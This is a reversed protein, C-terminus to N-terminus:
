PNTGAGQDIECLYAGDTAEAGEIDILAGKAGLRNWPKLEAARVDSVFYGAHVPIGESEMWQQYPTRESFPEARFTESKKGGARKKDHAIAVTDLISEVTMMGFGMGLMRSTFNRRSIEGDILKALLGRM